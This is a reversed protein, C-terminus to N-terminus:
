CHDMHFQPGDVALAELGDHHSGSEDLVGLVHVEELPSAVLCGILCRCFHLLPGPAAFLM